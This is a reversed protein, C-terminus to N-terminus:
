GVGVNRGGLSPSMAPTDIEVLPHALGELEVEENRLGEGQGSQFNTINLFNKLLYNQKRQNMSNCVIVHFSSLTFSYM